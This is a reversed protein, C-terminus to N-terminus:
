AKFGLEVWADGSPGDFFEVIHSDATVIPQPVKCAQFLAVVQQADLKAKSLGDNSNYIAVACDWMDGVKTIQVIGRVKEDVIAEEILTETETALTRPM